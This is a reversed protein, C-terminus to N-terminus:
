ANLFNSEPGQFVVLGASFNWWMLSVENQKVGLYEPLPAWSGELELDNVRILVRFSCSTDEALGGERM